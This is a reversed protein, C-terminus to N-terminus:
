NPHAAIIVVQEIEDRDDKIKPNEREASRNTNNIANNPEM